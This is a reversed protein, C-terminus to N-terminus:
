EDLFDDEKGERQEIRDAILFAERNELEVEIGPDLDLGYEREVEVFSITRVTGSVTVDEDEMVRMSAGSIVVVIEDNFVGGSELIFARGDIEEVEGSVQVKKGNYYAVNDLLEEVSEVYEYGTEAFSAASFATLVMATTWMRLSNMPLKM